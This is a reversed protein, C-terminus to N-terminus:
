TEPLRLDINMRVGENLIHQRMARSAQESDHRRIARLITEHEELVQEAHEPSHLIKGESQELATGIQQSVSLFIPNSTIAVLKRHFASYVSALM